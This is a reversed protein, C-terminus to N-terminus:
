WFPTTKHVITLIGLSLLPLALNLLIFNFQGSLWRVIGAKVTNKNWPFEKFPNKGRLLVLSFITVTVNLYLIVSPVTVGQSVLIKLLVTYISGTICVMNM